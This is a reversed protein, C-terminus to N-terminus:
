PEDLDFSVIKNELDRTRLIQEKVTTNFVEFQENLKRYHNGRLIIYALKSNDM